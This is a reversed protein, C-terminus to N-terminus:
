NETPQHARDLVLVEVPVSKFADLQLGLQGKIAEWVTPRGSPEASVEPTVAPGANAPLVVVGGPGFAVSEKTRPAPVNQFSLDYDYEGALGTADVVPENLKQALWYALGGMSEHRGRLITGALTMFEGTGASDSLHPIGNKVVVDNQAPAPGPAAEGTKAPAAASQNLKPGGKAVVLRYGPLQRTERHVVLGFRDALLRQLMIRIQAKTAAAPVKAEVDYLETGMWPSKWDIEFGQKLGYAQMALGALTSFETRFLGPSSTRPPVSSGMRNPDSNKISAVEFQLDTEGSHAPSQAVSRPPVMLGVVIPGAIALLGAGSLLAKKWFNLGCVFRNAMIGEVRKKLDAGTVGAACALPSTLYFECVMLVGEAYARPDGVLRLVEEDCAREREEELRTGLWWVLPHFWFIAEVIMHIGALLNDRRRAHCLEHALIAELQADSLYEGIGNPLWIAQRFIGFIGPELKAASAVLRLPSARGGQVRRLAEMERGESLPASADVIRAVRRWKLQWKMLIAAFGCFWVAVIASPLQNSRRPTPAGPVPLATDPLAFPQAIQEALVPIRPSAARLTLPEGFWGGIAMIASFPVLFKLSAAVWIWHRVRAHNQRLSFALLAAVGAFVTSQWLHNAVVRWISAWDASAFASM